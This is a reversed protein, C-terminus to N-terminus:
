LFLTHLDDETETTKKMNRGRLTRLNSGVTVFCDLDGSMSVVIMNDDRRVKVEPLNSYRVEINDLVDAIHFTNKTHAFYVGSM